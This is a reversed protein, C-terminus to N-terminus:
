RPDPARAPRRARGASLHAPHIRVPHREGSLEDHWMRGGHLEVFRKSISLGLGSGGKDRWLQHSGQYFPEFIRDADEPRIGPGTDAVSVVAQADRLAVTIQIGGEETFRAANSMLNLVVQKIRTRDCYIEPLDEPFHVALKLGKKEILPFVAAVCSDTIDRLDVRERHLALRGAELRSLDLVDNIMTALHECNRYVVRLDDRMKPSLIMDYIAPTQVMLDVLGIIMNLPTRFEHSVNAVFATKAQQAEEAMMRLAAMREGALALQRNTQALNEMARELEAKRDRAEELFRQARDFYEQVWDSLHRVQRHSAYTVGVVAWVALLAIVVHSADLGVTRTALLAILLIFEGLGTALAAPFSILSAATAVPIAALVLVTPIRLWVHAAHISALMACITFWRGAQDRAGTLLWGAVVLGGVLLLLTMVQTTFADPLRLFQTALFLAVALALLAALVPRPSIRLESDLGM